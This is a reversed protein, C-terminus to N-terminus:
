WHVTAKLEPEYLYLATLADLSEFNCFRWSISLPLYQLKVHVEWIGLSCQFIIIQNFSIFGVSNNKAGQSEVVETFGFYNM